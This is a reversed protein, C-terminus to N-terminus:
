PAPLAKALNANVFIIDGLTLTGNANVDKLFNASTVLKALQANVLVLDSLLVVRSQNVDGLLFGVRVSGSGGSGGDVSAVNALAITVYQRDTVGTLGVIVDNGSFTPAGATATGETITATASAIPKDFTFVITQAPGQRPETTPNTVVNGLPLDFTGAAGHVRRSLASQLAPAAAALVGRIEGGPFVTTHIDFYADGANMGAVLTNFAQSVTGGSSAIFAANYSSALTMDITMDYTGSTVGLPFGPFVAAVGVNTGAPACCHVHAASDLSELSNFSAQVRMTVLAFDITITAFGTGTSATPPVESSGSLQANYISQNAVAPATTALVAVVALVGASGCSIIESLIKSVLERM